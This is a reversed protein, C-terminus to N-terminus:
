ESWLYCDSTSDVLHVSIRVRNGSRRVNSGIIVAAGRAAGDGEEITDAGKSALIRLGPLQALRHVVEDRVADCLYGLDHAASHDTLRRVAITNRSVLVTGITRRLLVPTDRQKFVPTYGGKPLEITIPDARGEERYYRVLKARLRRAQVRVIPDTRPDFTTEKRFVQVGIVYEKLDSQRGAMAENVVFTLFRKLSDAQQFTESRLVRALQEHRAAGVDPAPPPASSRRSAREGTM